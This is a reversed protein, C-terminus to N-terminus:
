RWPADMYQLAELIHEECILESGELDAITRSLRLIRANGRGSMGRVDFESRYIEEAEATMTCYQNIDRQNMHANCFKGTGEFRKLQIARSANVRARIAASSEGTANPDHLQDFTLDELQVYMDIRDMLPGSLRKQYRIVSIPSCTCERNKSGTNGCPCLNMAGVLMFRAPYTCSANARSVTIEGDEMPQRLAELVLRPFEPMEDLFLVGLHAMSIEGPMAVSGGGVVSVASASHHPAVFPRRQVIGGTHKGAASYIKTIELAEEFTLDPLITPMARAIMTKGGGPPGGLLLNHGGAAAIEAARKAAYQGKILSFDVAEASHDAQWVIPELPQIDGEGKLWGYLQSLTKVPIVRIGSVYAAEAANEEPLVVETLGEERATVAMALAGKVPRIAGELSLEGMFMRGDLASQPLLGAACLMGLAIPLDYVTGEKKMGAPALNVVVRGPPFAFGSNKIAARVRERSESVAKGPLGVTEHSPVGGSLDVEVCIRKGAIGQLGCSNVNANM